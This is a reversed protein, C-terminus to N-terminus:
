RRPRRRNPLLEEMRRVMESPRVDLVEALLVVTRVTPSRLGREVLSIYTRDLAAARALKEQAVGKEKRIERLARGFASEPGCADSRRVGAVVVSNSVQVM